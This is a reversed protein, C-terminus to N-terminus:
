DYEANKRKGLEIYASQIVVVFVALTRKGFIEIECLVLRMLQFHWTRGNM